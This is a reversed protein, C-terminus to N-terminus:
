PSPFLYCFPQLQKICALLTPSCDHIEIKAVLKKIKLDREDVYSKNGSNWM